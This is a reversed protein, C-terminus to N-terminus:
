QCGKTVVKPIFVTNELAIDLELYGMAQSLTAAKNRRTFSAHWRAIRVQRDGVERNQRCVLACIWITRASFARAGKNGDTPIGDRSVAALGVVVISSPFGHRRLGEERSGRAPLEEDDRRPVAGVQRCRRGGECGVAGGGGKQSM